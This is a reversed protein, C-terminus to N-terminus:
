QKKIIEEALRKCAFSAKCYKEYYIVPKGYSPAEALKVSRPIMTKYAKNPFYKNVEEIVQQNLKLRSDYMTYVVGELELHENYHQKVTRVTSLLQSLGELAYYECQLPVILTDSATLANLSLLGLSPPCDIIIFDFDVSLPSIAKKLAYFREESEALELEAGALNMNAPLLFLNKFGTEQMIARAPVKNILIDYTSYEIETKDVGVGSTSNGQPDVDVLLTTKGKTGLAAALNVCTTTKGVGGKQNFIAITKGM